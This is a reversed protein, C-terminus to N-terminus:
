PGNRTQGPAFCPFPWAPHNDVYGGQHSGTRSQAAAVACYFNCRILGFLNHFGGRKCFFSMESPALICSNQPIVVHWNLVRTDDVFVEVNALVYTYEIDGVHSLKPTLPGLAKAKRWFTVDLLTARGQVPYFHLVGAEGVLRSAYHVVSSPRDIHAPSTCAQAWHQWCRSPSSSTRTECCQPRLRPFVSGVAHCLKGYLPGLAISAKCFSVDM